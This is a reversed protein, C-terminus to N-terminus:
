ASDGCRSQCSEGLLPVRGMFYHRERLLHPCELRHSCEIGWDKVGVM